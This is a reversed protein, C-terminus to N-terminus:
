GGSGTFTLVRGDEMAGASAFARQVAVNENRVVASMRSFGRDRLVQVVRQLFFRGYGMGRVEPAMVMGAFQGTGAELPTFALFGVPGSLGFPECAFTFGAATKAEVMTAVTAVDSAQGPEFNPDRPENLWRHLEGVSEPPFPSVIIM